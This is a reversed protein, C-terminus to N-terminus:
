PLLEKCFLFIARGTEPVARNFSSLSAFRCTDTLPFRGERRLPRLVHPSLLNSVGPGLYIIDEAKRRLVEAVRRRLKEAAERKKQAKKEAHEKAQDAMAKEVARTAAIAAM